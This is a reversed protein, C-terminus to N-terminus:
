PFPVHPPPGVEGPHHKAEDRQRRLREDEERESAREAEAYGARQGERRASRSLPQGDDFDGAPGHPPYVIPNRTRAHAVFFYTVVVVLAIVAIPVFFFGFGVFTAVAVLIALAWALGVLLHREWSRM